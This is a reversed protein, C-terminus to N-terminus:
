SLKVHSSNLRTSKRDREFVQVSAPQGIQSLANLATKQFDASNYKSLLNIIPQEGKQSKLAGLATVIAIASKENSPNKSAGVLASRFLTTYPLLTSMPPP